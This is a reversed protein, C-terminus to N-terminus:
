GTQFVTTGGSAFVRQGLRAFKALGASPYDERELPGVVVYRVRYRALLRRALSRNKTAYITRVDNPRRGASNGWQLEHGPWQIVTPLGTYVSIRGRGDFDFDDGVTELVTPDGPQRRLWAIAKADGPDRRALWRLGDLSPPDAFGHSRSYFAAVPYALSLAFLAIVGARWLARLPRTLQSETWFALCVSGLGLLLWAHYGLKFVTNFRYDTTGFFFDRFYVVEGLSV